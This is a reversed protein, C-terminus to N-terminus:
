GDCRAKENTRERKQCQAISHIYADDHKYSAGCFSCSYRYQSKKEKSSM